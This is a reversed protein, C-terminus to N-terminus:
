PNFPSSFFDTIKAAKGNIIVAIIQLKRRGTRFVLNFCNDIYFFCQDQIAFPCSPNSVVLEKTSLVTMQFNALMTSLNGKFIQWVLYHLGPFFLISCM